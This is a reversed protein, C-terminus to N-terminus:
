DLRRVQAYMAYVAAQEQMNVKVEELYEREGKNPPRMTLRQITANLVGLSVRNGNDPKKYALTAQELAERLASAAQTAPHTSKALAAQLLEASMQYARGMSKRTGTVSALSTEREKSFTQASGDRYIVMAVKVNVKTIPNGPHTIFSDTEQSIQGSPLGSFNRTSPPYPPGMDSTKEQHEAHGDTYINDISLGYATVDKPSNNELTITAKSTAPQIAIKQVSLQAMSDSAYSTLAFLLLAASSSNKM